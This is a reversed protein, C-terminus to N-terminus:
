FARTIEDAFHLARWEHWYLGDNNFSVFGLHGGFSPTELTCNRNQRCAEQPFCDSNLFPDDLANIILTPLQIHKIFHKSSCQQWYDEAGRFGHIPATYLNDFEQFTKISALQKHDIHGPFQRAKGYVKAKLSRIFRSQYIHNEPKNLQVVSGKLCCPASVAISAQISQHLASQREGLYKLLLNGGLSFGMLVAQQYKGDKLIHRIALDFDDTAGSHYSIPLRNPEGSCGRYNMVVVDWGHENFAKVMGMVQTEGSNSELGCAMILVRNSGALSYDLDLFDGDPCDIRQRTYKPKKTCRFLHPYITNLHPNQFPWPPTYKIAIPKTTASAIPNM